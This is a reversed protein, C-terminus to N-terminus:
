FIGRSRIIGAWSRGVYSSFELVESLSSGISNSTALLSDLFAPATSPSTLQHLEAASYIGILSARKTYWALRLSADQSVHCAEDAIRASHKLMPLPDLPPVGSEPASLLAFAEPLLSVVPENYKLRAHLADKVSETSSMSELGGDLWAHILTKRARDGSGFLASVASDSLPEAHPVPLHLVSNALATRTFGHESVLPLALKLLRLSSSM